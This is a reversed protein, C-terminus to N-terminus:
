QIEPVVRAAQYFCRAAAGLGMLCKQPKGGDSDDKKLGGKKKGGFEPKYYKEYYEPYTSHPEFSQIYLGDQPDKFYKNFMVVHREVESAIQQALGDPANDPGVYLLYDALGEFLLQNFYSPDHWYRLENDYDRDYFPVNRNISAKALDTAIQKWKDDHTIHFLHSAASMTTGNNYTLKGNEVKMGAPQVGDMICHDSKDQLTEIQWDICKAAFDVYVKSEDPIFKSIQLCAKAVEATTCANVYTKLVHWKVGGINQDWGGMLFRVLERGQDLYKKNGTVEYATIIASAVQADDDYYVDNDSGGNEAASYGKTHKNQYRAFTAVAPDILPKLEPYIRAGDVIAQVAVSVAWVVFRDENYCGSCKKPAVFTGKKANFFQLWMGRTVEYGELNPNFPM